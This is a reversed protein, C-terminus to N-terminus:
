DWWWNTGARQHRDHQPRHERILSTLSYDDGTREVKKLDRDPDLDVGGSIGAVVHKKDIVRHNIISDVERPVPMESVVYPDQSALMTPSWKANDLMSQDRILDAVVAAEFAFRLDLYIPYKECLEDFHETFSAAFARNIPESQGTHIRAGQRSLLENESQVQVISEPLEYVTADANTKVPRRNLTFWWRLVDMPPVNGSEDLQVMDLYNRIGDVGPTLGMGILKMHYDAAVLVHATHTNPAVAQFEIDQRGMKQQLTDLWNQREGPRLPTRAREQLYSRTAALNAQRPTISCVMKGEGNLCNDLATVLDSLRHQNDLQEDSAPGALIIDHKDPYVLVYQIRSLGGLSLMERTPPLGAAQRQMLAQELGPLSIKRLGSLSDETLSQTKQDAVEIPRMHGSTDILVGGPFGAISGTGGVDEWTEPAVTTTILEILTTFDAQAAGGARGADREAAFGSRLSQLTDFRYADDYIQAATAIAASKAGFSSQTNSISRLARNREARNEIQSSLETAKAFEGAKLYADFQGSDVQGMGPSCLLSLFFVVVATMKLQTIRSM